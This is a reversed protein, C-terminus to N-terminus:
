RAVTLVMIRIFKVNVNRDFIVLCLAQKLKPQIKKMTIPVFRTNLLVHVHTVDYMSTHKWANAKDM